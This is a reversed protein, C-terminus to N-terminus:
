GSQIDPPKAFKFAWVVKDRHYWQLAIEKSPYHISRRYINRRKDTHTLIFVDHKDNYWCLVRQYCNDIIEFFALTPIVIKMDSLTELVELRAVNPTHPVDKGYMTKIFEDIEYEPIGLQNCRLKYEQIVGRNPIRYNKIALPKAWARRQRQLKLTKQKMTRNAM